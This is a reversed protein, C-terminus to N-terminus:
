YYPHVLLPQRRGFGRTSQADRRRCEVGVDTAAQQAGFACVALALPAVAGIVDREQLPSAVDASLGFRDGGVREVEARRHELRGEGQDVLATEVIAAPVGHLEGAAGREFAHRLEQPLAVLAREIGFFRGEIDV